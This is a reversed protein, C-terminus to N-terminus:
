LRCLILHVKCTYYSTQAPENVTPGCHLTCPEEGPDPPLDKLVISNLEDIGVM